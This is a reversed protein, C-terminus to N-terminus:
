HDNAVNQTHCIKKSDSSNVQKKVSPLCPSVRLRMSSGLTSENGLSTRIARGTSFARIATVRAAMATTATRSQHGSPEGSTVRVPAVVESTSVAGTSVRAEGASGGEEVVELRGGVPSGAASGTSVRAAIPVPVVVTASDGPAEATESAESGVATGVVAREVVVRGADVVLRGSVVAGGGSVVRAETSDVVDDDVVSAARDGVVDDDVVSAAGDGVVDDDVVSAAGDEVVDDDVVSAAGDEVVDDDVVTGGGAEDEVVPAGVM